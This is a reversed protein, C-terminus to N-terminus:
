RRRLLAWLNWLLSLGLLARRCRRLLARRQLGTLRGAPLPLGWAHRRRGRRLRLLPLGRGVLLLLQLQLLLALLLFALLREFLLPLLLELLLTLLLQLLLALLLELLLTLLLEFLLAL